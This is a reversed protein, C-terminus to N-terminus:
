QKEYMMQVLYEISSDFDKYMTSYKPGLQTTVQQLINSSSKGSKYGNKVLSWAKNLFASDREISKITTPQGHGPLVTKPALKIVDNLTQILHTVNGTPTMIPIFEANLVDGGFIVKSEPLWMLVDGSSHGDHSFYFVVDVGGFNRTEKQTLLSTPFYLPTKGTAGQTMRSFADVDEQGNRKMKALSSKTTIVEIGQNAFAGNGLWHDAHSHSNVVWRIPKDTVSKITKIIANGIVESSGTDFVLVGKETVIFHSKAKWGKNRPTPRGYFPSIISYINNSIQTTQFVLTNDQAWSKSSVFSFITISVLIFSILLQKFSTM